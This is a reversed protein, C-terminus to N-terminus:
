LVILGQRTLKDFKQPALKLTRSWQAEDGVLKLTILNLDMEYNQKYWMKKLFNLDQSNPYLHFATWRINKARPHFLNPTSHHFIHTWVPSPRPQDPRVSKAPRKLIVLIYRFKLNNRKLFVEDVLISFFHKEFEADFLVLSSAAAAITGGRL